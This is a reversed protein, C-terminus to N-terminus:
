KLDVNWASLERNEYRLVYTKGTADNYDAGIWMVGSSRKVSGISRHPFRNIKRDVCKLLNNKALDRVKQVYESDSRADYDLERKLWVAVSKSPIFVRCSHPSPVGGVEQIKSEFVEGIQHALDEEINADERDQELTSYVAKLEALSGCMKQLIEKEFEPFRTRTPENYDEGRKIKDLMDAFLQLRNRRVYTLLDSKWREDVGPSRKVYIFFARITIDNDINASNATVVYMLNNPRSEEGKGYSARGTIYPSTILSSLESSRFTGVVNDVLFVRRERGSTSLLRKVIEDYKRNLDYPTVQMAQSGYLEAAINATTSKGTGGGDESDIIWLPNDIGDRYFLPACLMASILVRYSPNAPFFKDLLGEFVEHGPSPDPLKPHAYYVDDRRPYDPVKAVSEYRRATQVLSERFEGKTLFGDGKSWKIPKKSKLQMWAFLSDTTNIYRIEGTDRDHDFLTEDGVKRPFGLFRIQTEDIVEDVARPHKHITPKGSKGPTPIKEEIYNSLSTENAEKALSLQADEDDPKKWAPASKIKEILKEATGGENTAWETVDGKEKKSLCTLIRISKAKGQLSEGIKDMHNRGSVDNDPIMVVDKGALSSSFGDGWKEAGGPNTTGPLGWGNLTDVDKEGEVLIVWSSRSINPLNYLVPEIHKVTWKGSADCQLFEKKLVPHEMRVVYQIVTGGEDTYKYRIIEKYGQDLLEQYRTPKYHSKLPKIPDIHLTEALWKVALIFPEKRVTEVLRIVDGGEKAKHDYWQDKEMHVNGGDGGRWTAIYRGNNHKPIGLTQAIERCDAAQKIQDIDYM